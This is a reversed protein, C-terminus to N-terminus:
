SHQPATPCSHGQTQGVAAVSAEPVLVQLGPYGVGPHALPQLVHSSVWPQQGVVPWQSCVETRQKQKMLQQSMQHVQSLGQQSM